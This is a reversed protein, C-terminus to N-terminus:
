TISPSCSQNLGRREREKDHRGKLENTFENKQYAFNRGDSFYGQAIEFEPMPLKYASGDPIFCIPNEGWDIGMWGSDPVESNEETGSLAEIIKRKDFPDSSREFYAVGDFKPPTSEDTKYMLEM